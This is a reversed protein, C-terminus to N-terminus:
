ARVNTSNSHAIQLGSRGQVRGKKPHGETRTQRFHGDALFQQADALTTTAGPGPAPRNRGGGPSRKWLGAQIKVLGCQAQHARGSDPAVAPMGATLRCARRDAVADLNGFATRLIGPTLFSMLVSDGYCPPTLRRGSQWATARSVGLRTGRLKGQRQSTADVFACTNKWGRGRVGRDSTSFQEVGTPTSGVRRGRPGVGVIGAAFYNRPQQGVFCKTVRRLFCGRLKRGAVGGGGCRGRRL